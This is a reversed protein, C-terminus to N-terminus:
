IKVPTMNQFSGAAVRDQWTLGLHELTHVAEKLRPLSPSGCCVSGVVVVVLLVTRLVRLLSLIPPSSPRCPLNQPLWMHTHAGRM